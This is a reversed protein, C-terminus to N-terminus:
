NVRRRFLHSHRTALWTGAEFFGFVRRFVGWDIHEPARQSATDWIGRELEELRDALEAPGRPAPIDSYAAPGPLSAVGQPLSPIVGFVVQAHRLAQVKRLVEPPIVVRPQRQGEEEGVEMTEHARLLYRLEALEAESARLTWKFGDQMDDIHSLTCTGLYNIAEEPLRGGRNLYEVMYERTKSCITALHFIELFVRQGTLMREGSVKRDMNNIIIM